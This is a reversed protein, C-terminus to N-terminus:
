TRLRSDLDLMCGPNPPLFPAANPHHLSVPLPSTPSSAGEPPVDDDILKWRGLEVYKTRGVWSEILQFERARWGFPDTTMRPSRHNTYALTMHPSYAARTPFNLDKVRLAAHSVSRLAVVGTLEAGELVFPASAKRTEFSRAGDLMVDIAPFRVMGIAADIKELLTHPLRGLCGGIPLLTMHLIFSPRQPGAIGARSCLRTARSYFQEAVHRPPRLAVFTNTPQAPSPIDHGTDLLM